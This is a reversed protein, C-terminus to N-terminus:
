LIQKNHKLLYKYLLYINEDKEPNLCIELLPNYVELRTENYDKFDTLWQKNFYIKLENLTLDLIYATDKNYYSTYPYTTQITHFPEYIQSFYYLRIDEALNDYNYNMANAIAHISETYLLDNREQITHLKSTLTKIHIFGIALILCLFSGLLYTYKKNIM